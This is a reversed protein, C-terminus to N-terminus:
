GGDINSPDRHIICYSVIDIYESRLNRLSASVSLAMNKSNNGGFNAMIPPQEGALFNVSYKTSLVTFM